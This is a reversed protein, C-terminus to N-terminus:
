SLRASCLKAGTASSAGAREGQEDSSVPSFQGVLKCTLLPVTCRELSLKGRFQLCVASTFWNASVNPPNKMMVFNKYFFHGSFLGGIASGVVAIWKPGNLAYKVPLLRGHLMVGTGAPQMDCQLAWLEPLVAPRGRINRWSLFQFPVFKWVFQVM